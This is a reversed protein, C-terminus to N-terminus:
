SPRDGHFIRVEGVHVLLDGLAIVYEPLPRQDIASRLHVEAAGYDRRWQVDEVPAAATTALALMGLGVLAMGARYCPSAM